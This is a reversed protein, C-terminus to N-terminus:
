YPSTYEFYPNPRKSVFDYKLICGLYDWGGNGPLSFQAAAHYNPAPVAAILLAFLAISALCKM